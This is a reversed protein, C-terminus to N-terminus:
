LYILSITISNLCISNTVICAPAGRDRAPFSQISKLAFESLQCYCCKGFHGENSKSVIIMIIM